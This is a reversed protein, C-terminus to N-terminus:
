ENEESDKEMADKLSVDKVRMHQILSQRPKANGLFKLNIFGDKYFLKQRSKKDRILLSIYHTYGRANPQMDRMVLPLFIARGKGYVMFNRKIPIWIGEEAVGDVERTIFETNLLRSLELNIYYM